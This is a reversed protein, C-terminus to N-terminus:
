YWRRPVASLRRLTGTGTGVRYGMMHGPDDGEGLGLAHIAM